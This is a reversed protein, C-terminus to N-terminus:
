SWQWEERGKDSDYLKVMKNIFFGYIAVLYLFDFFPGFVFFMLAMYLISYQQIMYLFLIYRVFGFLFSYAMISVFTLLKFLFGKNGMFGVILGVLVMFTLWIGVQQKMYLDSYATATYPFFNAAFLFYICNILHTVSGLTFYIAVPKGSRKGSNLFLLLVIVIILNAIIFSIQPYTTPFAVYNMQSLISFESQEIYIPAGVMTKGLVDAARDSFFYTIDDINM